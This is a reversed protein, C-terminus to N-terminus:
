VAVQTSDNLSRESGHNALLRDIERCHRDAVREYDYWRVVKQRGLKGKQRWADRDTYIARVAAVLAELNRPSRERCYQALNSANVQLPDEYAAPVLIGIDNNQIVESAGGVDTLILPLEQLMAETKALSWGETLSSLLFADALAYYEVVDNTHGPMLVCDALESARIFDRMAAGYTPDVEEGVLLLRLRPIERKLAKIAAIAHIQAKTGVISAVCLVVFDKADLGLSARQLRPTAPRQYKSVDIGNPICTIKEPAVLYKRSFFRAATQSVAVYHTVFLDSDQIARNEEETTWIYSNHIFSLVPISERWALPAGFNSYHPILIDPAESTLLRQYAAVDGAVEHVAIGSARCRAAMDGSHGTVVLSVRYQRRHLTRAMDLVVQELGGRHMSATELLIAPLERRGGSRRRVRESVSAGSSLRFLRDNAAAAIEAAFAAPSKRALYLDAVGLDPTIQLAEGAASGFSDTAATLTNPADQFGALAISETALVPKGAALYASMVDYIASEAAASNAFPAILLSARSFYAPWAEPRKVGLYEIRAPGRVRSRPDIAVNSNTALFLITAGPLAAALQEVAHWEVVQDDVPGAYVILPESFAPLDWLESVNDRAKLSIMLDEFEFISEPLV